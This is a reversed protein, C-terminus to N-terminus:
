SSIADVLTEVQLDSHRAILDFDRDAHLLIVDNRRALTALLTDTFPITVGARRLSFALRATAEWDREEIPLLHLGLLRQQLRAYEQENATGGLLEM